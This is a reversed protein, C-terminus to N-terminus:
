AWAGNSGAGPEVREFAYRAYRSCWGMAILAVKEGAAPNGQSSPSPTSLVMTVRRSAASLKEHVAWSHRDFWRRWCQWSGPIRGPRCRCSQAERTLCRAARRGVTRRVAIKIMNGCCEDENVGLDVEGKRQCHLMAHAVDELRNRKVQPRVAHTARFFQASASILSRQPDDAVCLARACLRTMDSRSGNVQDRKEV